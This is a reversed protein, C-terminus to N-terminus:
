SFPLMMGGTGIGEEALARLSRSIYDTGQVLESWVNDIKPQLEMLQAQNGREKWASNFLEPYLNAPVPVCGSAGISHLWSFDPALGQYVRLGLEKGGNCLTKFYEADGSSDKIMSSWGRRVIEFVLEPDIVVGTCGPMNYLVMEMETSERLTGFHKLLDVTATTKLYYPTVTVFCNIGLNELVKIRELDRITSSELVGCLLPYGEPVTEKATSVVTEYQKMTLVSGLGATGCIFLAPTGAKLQKHILKKLAPVDVEQKDTLPTLLPPIIGEPITSTTM